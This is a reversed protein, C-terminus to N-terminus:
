RSASGNVWALAQEARGRDGTGLALNQLFVDVSFVWLQGTALVEVALSSELDEVPREPDEVFAALTEFACRTVNLQDL